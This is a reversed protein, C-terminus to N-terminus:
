YAVQLRTVILDEHDFTGTSFRLPANFLTREYNLQFKLNQTLYWNLGFTWARATRASVAPDAFGLRFADRDAVVESYRAAVEFAGWHGRAPDFPRRPVVSRFGANEGTLVYSGQLFWGRNFLPASVGGRAIQERNLYAEGMLGFQRYYHYFQPALRSAIGDYTAGSRYQFFLERADTRFSSQFGEHRHGYTGAIGLGLNQLFHGKRQLFPRAFIRGAFDKGRGTDGFSNGADPAGNLVALAYALRGKLTEGHVMLGTDRNPALNQALSREVFLLDQGSQIRELSFPTKFLGGRFVLQPAQRIDVFADLLGARGEDFTPHITFEAYKGVTGSIIPRVRRMLFSDIGTRGDATPFVRADMQLFGRLRLKFDRNAGQIVFGDAPPSAPQPKGAAPTAGTGPQAAPAAPAPSKRLADVTEELRKIVENQRRVTEELEKLRQEVDSPAPAAAPLAPAPMPPAPPAPAESGEVVPSVPAPEAPPPTQALAGSVLGLSAACLLGPKLLTRM